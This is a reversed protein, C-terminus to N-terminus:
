RDQLSYACGCYNQRYLNLKKSIELAKKFGDKKKFDIELFNDEALNKGIKFITQSQKHPSITLTTTFYDLNNDKAKKYTEGLRLQFCADCRRGGEKEDKFIACNKKWRSLDYGSSLLEIKYFKAIKQAAQKRLCYEKYPYINPNYFYGSVLYGKSQLAEIAHSACVGCCIHLLVKNKM